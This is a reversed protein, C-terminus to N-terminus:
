QSIKRAAEIQMNFYQEFAIALGSMLFFAGVMLAFIVCLIILWGSQNKTETDANFQADFKDDPRLGFAFTALWSALISAEGLIVAVWGMLSEKETQALEFWGWIGFLLCAIQLYFWKSKFGYLYLWHLGTGPLFTSISCSILKSKFYTMGKIIISLKSKQIESL